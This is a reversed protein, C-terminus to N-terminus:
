RAVGGVRRRLRAHPPDLEVLTIDDYDIPIVGLLLIWSRCVPEGVQVGGLGAEKVEAPATMRLLGGFEDNVGEFTCVRAWVTEADAHLLSFTVIPGRM